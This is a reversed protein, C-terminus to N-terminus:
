GNWTYAQQTPDRESVNLNANSTLMRIAVIQEAAHVNPANGSTMYCSAAQKARIPCHQRDVM